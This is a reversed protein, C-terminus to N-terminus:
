GPSFFRSDIDPVEIPCLYGHIRKGAQERRQLIDRVRSACLALTIRQGIQQQERNQSQHASRAGIPADDGEQILAPVKEILVKAHRQLPRRRHVRQAGHQLGQIALGQFPRETM